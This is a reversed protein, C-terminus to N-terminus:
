EIKKLKELLNRGNEIDKKAKPHNPDLALTSEWEQIAEEIEEQLFFKVGMLYHVEASQKRNHDLQFSVDKYGPNVRQFAKLAEDYKKERSLQTGWQYYSANMLEQTEKNGPDYELIKEALAACEQYNGEQYDARAKALIEKTYMAMEPIPDATTKSPVSTKKAFAPDLLPIRLIMPPAILNDIKLGNFYAILFDKESDKYFKRALGKITDGKKVEYLISDEGAIKQKLYHIAEAHDPRLYLTILFEKRAPAYSHIKLYSVGKKFHWDAAAQIRKNLHAIKEGAEADAPLLSKVIVWDKLAAALDGKKEDERAKIRYREPLGSFSDKGKKTGPMASLSVPQKSIDPSTACGTFFFSILSLFIPFLKKVPRKKM